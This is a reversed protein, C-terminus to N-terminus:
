RCGQLPGQGRLASPLRSGPSIVCRLHSDKDEAGSVAAAALHGRSEAIM